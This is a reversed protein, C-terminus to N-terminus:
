RPHSNRRTICDKVFENLEAGIVRWDHRREILARGSQSLNARLQESSLVDIIHKALQHPDDSFLLEGGNVADVGISAWRTAVVPTRLALSELLKIRTGGGVREPVVSLWGQAVFRRIDSIYGVCQAADNQPLEHLPVNETRGAMLLKVQPRAQLVQPLVDGIFFKMADFNVYYSLAGTYVITDPQPAGFDGSFRELDAGNPIIAIHKFAPAAAQIPAVEPKSVVTCGDFQALIGRMHSRWKSWMLQKRAKNIAGQARRAQEAYISIEIEELIRPVGKVLLAYPATDFQSAIVCDFATEGAMRQVAAAFEPSYTDIESRPKNSFLGAVAKLSGPNYRRYPVAEVRKCFAAMGAIRAADIAEDCFSLLWVENHRSLEKILQFIRVKSGNDSPYPFWRSLFLIRM